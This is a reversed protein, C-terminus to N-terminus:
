DEAIRAVSAAQALGSAFTPYELRVDLESFMRTPRIRKSSASRTAAPSDPPPTTFEPPPGGLLRALEEYYARREVPAGDSVVYTRPAVAREAAAMVVAAADDAHILNLWGEDPAAVPEGGRIQAANPIRGPGYLGAMRLVIARAGLPHAALLQEAALCARGGERSPECASAEDVWEGGSQGYVGTSSVYVFKGTAAPLADLAARLGDVYVTRISAGSARDYGIAYLVVDVQPLRALTPPRLVDAVIPQCGERALRDANGQSRTVAFVRQGAAIWRRAVRQGLYGCGFILNSKAM